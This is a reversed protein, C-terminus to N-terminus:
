QVPVPVGNRIVVRMSKRGGFQKRIDDPTLAAGDSKKQGAFLKIADNPRLIYQTGEELESRKEPVDGMVPTEKRAKEVMTDLNNEPKQRWEDFWQSQPLHKVAGVDRTLDAFKKDALNMQGETEALIKRNAGPQMTPSAFTKGVMDRLQNTEDKNLAANSLVIGYTNKVFEQFKQASMTSMDPLPVGVAKSLAQAEAQVDAFAGSEYSQLLNKIQGLQMRATQRTAAGATEVQLTKQNEVVNDQAVKREAFGPIAVTGGGIKPLTGTSEMRNQAAMARERLQAAQAAGAPGYNAVVKAQEQLADPDWDPDVQSRVSSIDLTPMPGWRRAADTAAAPATGPAPAPMTPPPPLPSTAVSPPPPAPAPLVGGGAPQTTQPVLGASPGGATSDSSGPAAPAGGSATLRGLVTRIQQDLTPDPPLRNGVRAAQQQQLMALISLDQARSAIGIRQQGQGIEQQQPLAKAAGVMGSGISGALTRSPSALMNGLFSLAPIVYKENRDWWDQKDPVVGGTPTGGGPGAAAGAVPAAANLAVARSGGPGGQGSVIRVYDQTEQPLFNLYSQGTAKAKALAATVADPGANYAASAINPDGFTKLQDDYYARGLKRNYDEAAQDKVPDGTRPRNFLEPDWPVGALKAAIPGTKPMVQTLGVAGASSTKPQGTKPDFHQNGSEQTIMAPWNDRPAPAPTAVPAPTAPPPVVGTTTPAPAPIDEPRIEPKRAWDPEGSYAAVKDERERAAPREPNRPFPVVNDRSPLGLREGTGPVVGATPPAEAVQTDADPDIVAGDTQYGARGGTRLALLPALGMIADAGGTTAGVAADGTLAGLGSMPLADAGIGGSGLLGSLGSIGQAGLKGLGALSSLSSLGSSGGSGGPGAGRGGSGQQLGGPSRAYPQFDAVPVYGSDSDYPIFGSTSGGGAARKLRGGRATPWAGSDTPVLDLPAPAVVGSGTKQGLWGSNWDWAGGTGVLGGTAPTYGSSGATGKAASGVLADKGESYLGGLDKGTTSLENAAKLDQALEPQQQKQQMLPAEKLKARNGESLQMGRPGSGGIGVRGAAGPYMAQQAAVIAAMTAPDFGPMSGGGGEAYGERLNDNTPMVLGGGSARAARDYDVSRLGGHESVAEPMKKEVDSALFGIRLLKHPDEKYRYRVIKLGNKTRGIEHVDEKLRDDSFFPQPQFANQTTTSGYNPGIGMALNGLFQTTQFPYAQEQLFQNYLATDQAQQTQQPILGAGIQGQAQAMSNQFAQNGATGYGQGAGFYTGAVNTGLGTQGGAIGSLLGAGTQLAARNAQGAGLYVGQQQQAAALAQSYGQNYLGAIEPAEAMNQQGSLVASALGARDGGFAGSSIANSNLNTQQLANQQNLWKTTPDVVSQIYPSMFQNIAAPDVATPNVAGMSAGVVGAAAGYNSGAAGYYPASGAVGANIASTANNYTPGIWNGAGSIANIGGQTTGTVPAVFEGSYSQFPQSAAQEGMGWVQNYKAAVDPPISVSSTQNSTGGQGKCV